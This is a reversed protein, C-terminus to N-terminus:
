TEGKSQQQEDIWTLIAALTYRVGRPGVRLCPIPGRPHTLTYLTRPSVRLYEAAEHITLIAPPTNSVTSV